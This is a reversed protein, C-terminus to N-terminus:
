DDDTDPQARNLAIYTVVDWSNRIGIFILLMVAAGLIWLAIPPDLPMTMGGALVGGYAIFPLVTYWTWDEADPDYATLRRALAAVRVMHVFGALGLLTVLAFAGAIRPWPAILIGSLLLVAGFHIVTPTSFASIGANSGDGSRQARTVLTVVVFMLGILTAGATATMTFFPGWPLLLPGAESTM